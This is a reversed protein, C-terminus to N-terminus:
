KEDTIWWRSAYMESILEDWKPPKYGTQICFKKSDLSRNIDFDDCPVIPVTAGYKAAIKCLLEYKNIPDAAVHYLGSLENNPLVYRAIVRSLEITPLGSFIAKRFGKVEVNQNLFWDVLSRNGELEHGIISTRLTVSSAAYVEGLRKSLGYLDNADPVDAEKYIGTRGSFVCDTSIHVTRFEYIEGYEVLEHPFVSNVRLSVLPNSSERLQKVVGICNIVVNPQVKEFFANLRFSDDHKVGVSIRDGWRLLAAPVQMSRVTGFVDYHAQQSLYHFLQSGLMGSVGMVVIRM